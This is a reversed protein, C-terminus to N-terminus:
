NICLTCWAFHQVPHLGLQFESQRSFYWYGWVHLNVHLHWVHLHCWRIASLLSSSFLRRFLTFSSFSFNAYCEVNLYHLEHCKTGDSWPLYMPFFHFYYCVKNEQAGFDNSVTVSAMFNFSRKSRPLFVIVFRSLRNFFSVNSQRCLDMYHFSHYKGTTMYPRSLQVM